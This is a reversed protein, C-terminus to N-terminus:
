SILGQEKLKQAKVISCQECRYEPVAKTKDYKNTKVLRYGRSQKGCDVCVVQEKVSWIQDFKPSFIFRDVWFFIASGILNAIAASVWFGFGVLYSTVFALIPTSM